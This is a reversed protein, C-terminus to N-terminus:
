KKWGILEAPFVAFGTAGVNAIGEKTAVVRAPNYNPILGFLAFVDEEIENAFKIQEEANDMQQLQRIKEDIEASGTDSKNLESDAFFMQGMYAIGYPDTAGWAMPLIDFDRNRLTKSFESGPRNDIVVDVGVDKLMKQTATAMAKSVELDGFLVYTLSLKQGDKERFGDAGVTWGAEDLIQASKEPDFGGVKDFNDSYGPQFPFMILSGVPEGEYPMGNFVIDTITSRNIGRTVAERVHVDKLVESNSNLVTLTTRTDPADNIAIGPMDKVSQYSEKANLALSDIEGNKFANIAAKDEMYRFIRRDLKGPKGWWKDNRVFVVEGKNFDVNEVTYPGAGWEPHLQKLYSNYNAPDKLAPHAMDTFLGPWYLYPGDFTVKVEFNDAGPEVSTIQEFGDTSKPAYADNDGRNIEWYTQFATVDIPTGDNFKADKNLKFTVVTNGDVMEENMSEIYAENAVPEGEPTFYILHPNYWRWLDTTYRTSDAHFRNQQESLESLGTVYDGGDRLEDYSASLFNFDKNAHVTKKDAGSDGGDSACGTLALATVALAATVRTGLSRQTM